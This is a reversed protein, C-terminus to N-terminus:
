PRLAAAGQPTPVDAELPFLEQVAGIARSSPGLLPRTAVQVWSRMGDVTHLMVRGTQLEGSTMAAVLPCARFCLPRGEADRHRLPTQWCPQGLIEDPAYGTLQEAAANWAVIHRHRDVAFAALNGAVAAEAHESLGPDESGPPMDLHLDSSLPRRTPRGLLFGQGLPVGLSALCTREAITEIGEAVVSMGLDSAAIVTAAVFERKAPDGDIGTILRRDLKVVDPRLALLAATGAYGSGYDDLAVRCGAERWREVAQMLRPNDLLPQCESIELVARDLPWLDDAAEPPLDPWRPDINLYLFQDRPLQRLASRRALKRCRQEFSRELHLRRATGFLGAPMAWPTGEPGRVLAEHATVRGSILDCIPQWAM